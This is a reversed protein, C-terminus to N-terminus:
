LYRLMHTCSLSEGFTMKLWEHQGPTASPSRIDTDPVVSPVDGKKNLTVFSSPHVFGCNCTPVQSPKQYGTSNENTRLQGYWLRNCVSTPQSVIAIHHERLNTHHINDSPARLLFKRPLCSLTCLRSHPTQIEPDTGRAYHSTADQLVGQRGTCRCM